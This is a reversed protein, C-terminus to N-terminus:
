ETISALGPSNVDSSLSWMYPPRGSGGGGDDNDSPRFDSAMIMTSARPFFQTVRRKIEADDPAKQVKPIIAVNHYIKRAIGLDTWFISKQIPLTEKLRFMIMSAIIIFIINAITLALSILGQKYYESGGYKSAEIIFLMGCNVAPPLLSASIAVGVLSNTQSDLLGVAVGLGSFFAIPIGVWFNTWTGRSTMEPVPWDEAVSFPLMAAAFVVGIVVCVVLSVVETVLAMRVMKFDGISLGYAISTVPGMLPSVLMSAIITASSNNALGLAAIAGAIILLTTYNFDFQSGELFRDHMIKTRDIDEVTVETLDYSPKLFQRCFEVCSITEPIIVEPSKGEGGEGAGGDLNNLNQYPNGGGGEWRSLRGVVKYSFSKKMPMGSRGGETASGYRARFDNEHMHDSNADSQDIGSSDYEAGFSVGKTPPEFQDSDPLVGDTKTSEDNNTISAGFSVGGSKSDVTGTSNKLSSPLSGGSSAFNVM